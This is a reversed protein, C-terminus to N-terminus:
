AKNGGDVEEDDDDDQKPWSLFDDDPDLDEAAVYISVGDRYHYPHERTAKEAWAAPDTPFTGDHFPRKEHM